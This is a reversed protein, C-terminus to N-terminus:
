NLAKEGELNTWAQIQVRSPGPKGWFSPNKKQRAAPGIKKLDYMKRQPLIEICSVPTMAKAALACWTTGRRIACIDCITIFQLLFAADKWVGM